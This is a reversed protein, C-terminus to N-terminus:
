EDVERAPNKKQERRTQKELRREQKKATKAARKDSKANAKATKRDLKAAIKAEKKSRKYVRKSEKAALKAERVEAKREKAEEKSMKPPKVPAPTENSSIVAEIGKKTLFSVLHQELSNDDITSSFMLVLKNGYSCMSAKKAHTHSGGIMVEFREVKQSIVEPLQVRGINSFTMTYLKTSPAYICRMVIDKIFLPVFKIGPIREINVHATIQREFYGKEVCEAFRKKVAALVDEFSDDRGPKVAVSMHGFFNRLTSSGFMGRLNVPMSIVIPRSRSTLRYSTNYISWILLACMYESLTAGAERALTLMSDTPFIAALAGLRTGDYRFGNIRYAEPEQESKKVTEAGEPVNVTFSDENFDRALESFEARIHEEPVADGLLRNYYCYVVLRIFNAAGMGDSLAHYIDLNIRKKYYTLRFLFGNEHGKYIPTCPYSHEERVIPKENNVDFYYWFLGRNLKLSFAPMISLAQELASQLVKPEVEEGLVATLRFVNPSRSSTIAPILKAANDLRDWYAEGIGSHNITKKKM